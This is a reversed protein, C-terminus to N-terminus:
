RDLEVIFALGLKAFKSAHEANGGSQEITDSSTHIRRNMQGKTSEFPISAPFGQGHWSAHDSCGYGCRDYGWPLQIYKDILRGLFANQEENTFDTMMVIDKTETGKFNTMDLQLVGIVDVNDRKHQAAIEKSGLLGVEEAAYGMFKITKKPKYSSEMLVRIIETITSIGSANDDAGPARSNARDWWGAISDAHGGVVIVEDTEGKVTMVISKQPWQPHTYGEVKVDARGQALKSWESIIWESSQIGTQARYYRNKFSSLHRITQEINIAEVKAMLSQVTEEQDISYDAFFGKQAQARKDLGGAHELAEDLSDHVMFGGCRHFEEHMLHSLYDTDEKNIQVVAIGDTSSHKTLSKISKNMSQVADDGVTIWISDPSSGFAAFSLLSFLFSTLLLYYM